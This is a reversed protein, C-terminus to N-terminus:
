VKEGQLADLSRKGPAAWDAADADPESVPFATGPTQAEPPFPRTLLPESWRPSSRQPCFPTCVSDVSHMM